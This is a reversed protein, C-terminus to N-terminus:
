RMTREKYKIPPRMRPSKNGFFQELGTRFPNCAEVEGRIRTAPTILMRLTLAFIPPYHDSAVKAGM